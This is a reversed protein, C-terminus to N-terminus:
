NAPAPPTQPEIQQAANEAKKAPLQHNAYAGLRRVVQSALVQDMDTRVLGVDQSTTLANDPNNTITRREEITQPGLVRQGAKDHLEFEVITTIGYEAALGRRDLSIIRQQQKESLLILQYNAEASRQTVKTNSNTLQYRLAQALPGNGAAGGIFIPELASPLTANNRLHFGCAAIALCAFLSVSLRLFTKM